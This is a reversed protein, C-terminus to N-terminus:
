VVAKLESQQFTKTHTDAGDQWTVVVAVDGTTQDLAFGCVVGKIPAPMVQEVADGNKFNSM